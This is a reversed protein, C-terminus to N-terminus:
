VIESVPFVSHGSNVMQKQFICEVPPRRHYSGAVLERRIRELELDLQEEMKRKDIGDIGPTRAGSSAMTIRAAEELWSRDAM